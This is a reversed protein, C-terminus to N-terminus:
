PVPSPPCLKLFKERGVEIENLVGWELLLRGTETRLLDRVRREGKQAPKTVRAATDLDHSRTGIQPEIESYQATQDPREALLQCLARFENALPLTDIVEGKGNCRRITAFGETHWALPELPSAIKALRMAEDIEENTLEERVECDALFVVTGVNDAFRARYRVRACAELFQGNREYRDGFDTPLVGPGQTRATLNLINAATGTRSKLWDHFLRRERFMTKLDEGNTKAWEQQLWSDRIGERGAKVDALTLKLHGKCPVGDIPTESELMNLHHRLENLGNERQKEDNFGLEALSAKEAAEIKPRLSAVQHEYASRMEALWKDMVEQLLGDYEPKLALIQNHSKIYVRKWEEFGLYDERQKVYDEASDFCPPALLRCPSVEVCVSEPYPEGNFVAPSNKYPGYFEPIAVQPTVLVPKGAQNLAFFQRRCDNHKPTKWGLSQFQRKEGRILEITLPKM